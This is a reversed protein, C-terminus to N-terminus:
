FPAKVKGDADFAYVSSHETAVYVVNHKGGAITLNAVHLPQAYIQGDVARSFLKGFMSAKVTSSTLAFEQLNVGSRFKDAHYTFMGPYDTVWVTAAGVVAPQAVSKATIKHQGRKAPPHYLGSSSITGVTANGGTIGDVAWIVTHNATNVVTATFQQSETLTLPALRPHVTVGVAALADSQACLQILLLFLVIRRSDM